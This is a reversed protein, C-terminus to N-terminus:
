RPTTVRNVTAMVAAIRAMTPTEAPLQGNQISAASASIGAESAARASTLQPAMARNSATDRGLRSSSSPTGGDKRVIITM